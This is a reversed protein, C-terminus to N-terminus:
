DGVRSWFEAPVSKGRGVFAEIGPHRPDSYLAGLLNLVDDGEDGGLARVLAPVDAAAVTWTWEYERAGFIEEVGSGLDQGEIVVDGRAGVRADLHRLGEPGTTNRLVVRRETM